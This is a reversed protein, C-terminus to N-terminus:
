QGIQNMMNQMMSGMDMVEVDAPLEFAADPINASLQINTLEALIKGKPDDIELRIPFQKEIWVWATTTDRTQPDAFRYVDCARGGITESGIKEAHREQLYQAYNRAGSIPQQSPNLADLKMAMGESPMVTFTGAQNRIIISTQGSVTMEMRFREDKLAVKSTFVDRGQTTKQDYTVSYAWAQGAALGLGVVMGLLGVIRAKWM